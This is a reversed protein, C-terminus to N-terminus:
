LAGELRELNSRMVSLFDGQEPEWGAPDFLVAEIEMAELRERAEAPPEWEWLMVREAGDALAHEVEHWFDHSAPQSPDFRLGIVDVGYARSLYEYSPTAAMVTQGDGVGQFAAHLEALEGQLEAFRERFREESEPEQAALAELVAEAQQAALQFDLWTVSATEGHTHEGEPGHSHTLADEVYIIDETFRASTDVVRTAPLTAAQTWSEYEAGNLLILDAEQYELVVEPEPTWSAPDVGEPVPFGVEVREEGIRQAFYKLPYSGVYVSIPPADVVAATEQPAEEEAPPAGCGTVTLVALGLLWAKRM